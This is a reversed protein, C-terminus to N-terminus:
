GKLAPRLASYLGKIRRMSSAMTFQITIFSNLLIIFESSKQEPCYYSNLSCQRQLTLVNALAKVKLFLAPTLIVNLM